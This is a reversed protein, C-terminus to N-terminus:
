QIRVQVNYLQSFQINSKDFIKIVFKREQNRCKIDRLYNLISHNLEAYYDVKMSYWFIMLSRGTKINSM